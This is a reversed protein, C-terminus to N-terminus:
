FETKQQLWVEIATAIAQALQDQAQPDTIWEFETPNIMFGLELLVSPAEHPRTLALNNWFVGYSPRNLNQVLEDHLFQALDHAHANYWFMGIGATNEADGADPLANYHVSLALTPKQERIAKQRDGLSVDIDTTRTLNVTAGKAELAAQIKQSIVLNVAKEPYGTSGAAGSENGGHGPDLLITAGTLSNASLKPPHRLSLILNTGEYRLEYGWQQSQKLRFDYRITDTDVPHWDLRRIVPSQSLYITDTQAVTNHLILSFTDDNQQVTVPVLTQLPFIVDTRDAFTQSRVSRILSRPPVTTSLTTTEAAKIWAGYDLRLWAGEKGTVSAQTGQPLPTLRSFNTSAGTRAVGALSTVAIAEPAQTNLIEVGGESTASTTVGNLTMTYTAKGLNGIKEFAVCGKHQGSFGTVLADNTLTLVASNPPLSVSDQPQLSVTQNALSISVQAEAPAQAQFCILEDPQRAINVAPYLNKLSNSVPPTSAKRTITRRLQTTQGSANRFEITFENTGVQLPLSPAFHGLNSRNISQGNITVTGNSPASGIFFIQEATTQHTAPPYSLHLRDSTRINQALLPSSLSLSAVFGLTVPKFM